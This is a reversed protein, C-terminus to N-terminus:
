SSSNSRGRADERLSLWLQMLKFQGGLATIFTALHILAILRYAPYRFSGAEFFHSWGCVVIFVAISIFLWFLRYSIEQTINIKRNYAWRMLLGISVPISHFLVWVGYNSWQYILIWAPSWAGCDGRPVFDSANFIDGM